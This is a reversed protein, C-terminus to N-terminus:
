YKFNFLRMEEVSLDTDKGGLWEKIVDIIVSTISAQLYKKSIPDLVEKQNIFLNKLLHNSVAISLMPQM